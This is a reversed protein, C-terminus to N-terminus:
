EILLLREKDSSAADPPQSMGTRVGCEPAKTGLSAPTPHKGVQEEGALNQCYHLGKLNQFWDLSM